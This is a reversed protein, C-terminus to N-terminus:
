LDSEKEDEEIAVSEDDPECTCPSHDECDSQPRNGGCVRCRACNRDCDDYCVEEAEPAWEELQERTLPRSTKSDLFWFELESELETWASITSHESRVIVARIPISGLLLEVRAKILAKVESFPVNLAVFFDDNYTSTIHVHNVAVPFNQIILADLSIFSM